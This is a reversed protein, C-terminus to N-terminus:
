RARYRLRDHSSPPSLQRRCPVVEQGTRAAVAVAIAAAVVLDPHGGVPRRQGAVDLDAPSRQRHDVGAAVPRRQQEHVAEAAVPLVPEVLDGLEGARMAHDRGVQGAEAARRHRRLRDGHGAVSLVSTSSSSASSTAPGAVTTPLEIPPKTAACSAIASGARTSRRTSTEGAPTDLSFTRRSGSSVSARSIAVGAAPRSVALSAITRRRRSRRIISCVVKRWGVRIEGGSTHSDIWPALLGPKRGARCAIM